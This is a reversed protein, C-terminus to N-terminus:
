CVGLIISVISEALESLLKLPGRHLDLEFLVGWAAEM